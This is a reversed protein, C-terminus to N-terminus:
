EATTSRVGGRLSPHQAFVPELTTHASYHGHSSIVGGPSALNHNQHLNSPLNDCVQTPPFVVQSSVPAGGGKSERVIVPEGTNGPPSVSCGRINARKGDHSTADRNNYMMDSPLVGGRSPNGSAVSISSNEGQESNKASCPSPTQVDNINTHSPVTLPTSFSGQSNKVGAGEGKRPRHTGEPSRVGKQFTTDDGAVLESNSKNTCKSNTIDFIKTKHQKNSSHVTKSKPKPKTKTKPPSMVLEAAKLYEEIEEWYSSPKDIDLKCRNSRSCRRHVYCATHQDGEPIPLKCRCYKM